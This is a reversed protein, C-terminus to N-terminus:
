PRRLLGIYHTNLLRTRELALAGVWTIPALRRSIPPALTLRRLSVAFGPFLARVEDARVGRVDPNRPNDRFFDYWLIAGDPALVRAMERALSARLDVDLISTFVTSQLVLDFSGDLWPLAGGDGRRLDAQPLRDRAHDLRREDLDIGALRSQRAGWSEFDVLWGGHGCGVDLIRTEGLPFYGGQVLLRVVERVRQQVMFLAGPSAVSYKSWPIERDRMGYVERIRSAEEDGGAGSPLDPETM